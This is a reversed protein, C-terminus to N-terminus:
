RQSEHSKVLSTIDPQPKTEPTNTVGGTGTFHNSPKKPLPKRAKKTDSLM